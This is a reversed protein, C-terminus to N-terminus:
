PLDAVKRAVWIHEGGPGVFSHKDFSGYLSEVEFGCLEFLYEMEMRYTYRVNLPTYHREVVCGREDLVEFLTLQRIEQTSPFFERKYWVLVQQGTAPHVIEEDFRLAAGHGRMAGVLEEPSPTYLNMAVRGDLQLHRNICRLSERQLLPTQLHQWAHHPITALSFAQNLTFDRMEGEFLHIRQQVDLPLSSKKQVAIALMDVSRDLGWVELGAEAIPFLTRGTGVGLEVVPGGLSLALEKYFGADGEVGKDYADYLTAGAHMFEQM